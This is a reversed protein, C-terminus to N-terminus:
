SRGGPSCEQKRGSLIADEDEEETPAVVGPETERITCLCLILISAGTWSSTCSVLLSSSIVLLGPAGLGLWFFLIDDLFLGGKGPLRAQCPALGGGLYSSLPTGAPGAPVQPPWIVEKVVGGRSVGDILATDLRLTILHCGNAM